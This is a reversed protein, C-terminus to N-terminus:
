LPSNPDDEDEDEEFNLPRSSNFYFQMSDSRSSELEKVQFCKYTHQINMYGSSDKDRALIANIEFNGKDDFQGFQINGGVTPNIGKKIIKRFTIFIPKYLPVDNAHADLIPKADSAGSGLLSFSQESELIESYSCSLPHSSTDISFRFVQVSAQKPFKGGVVFEVLADQHLVSGLKPILIDVFKKIFECLGTMSVDTWGPIVQLQRIWDSLSEKILLSSLASGAFMMGLTMECLLPPETGAESPQHVKVPLSLLKIGADVYIPPKRGFTLRSDSAFYVQGSKERWAICLTM